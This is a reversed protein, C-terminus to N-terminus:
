ASAVARARLAAEIRELAHSVAELEDVSL